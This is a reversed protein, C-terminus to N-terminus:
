GYIKLIEEMKEVLVKEIDEDVNNITFTKKTNLLFEEPISTGDEYSNCSCHSQYEYRLKGEKDIGYQEQSGEYDEENDTVLIWIINPNDWWLPSPKYDKKIKDWNKIINQIVEKM